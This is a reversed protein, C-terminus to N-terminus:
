KKIITFRENPRDHLYIAEFLKVKMRAVDTWMGKCEVWEISGDNHLVKFDPIYTCIKFGNVEMPVRVEYEWSKIDKAKIRLDLEKAYAAELRSRMYIGNYISSIAHYKNGM